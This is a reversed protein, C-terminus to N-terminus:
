DQEKKMQVLLGDILEDVNGSARPCKNQVVKGHWDILASHPLGNIDFDNWLKEGWKGEALLNVTKVRHKTIMKKWLRSSTSINLITVPENKYREVLENEHSFDQICPKCGANWFNILVIQDKFESPEHYVGSTDPLYFYPLDTDTPLVAYSVSYDKLFRNFKKNKVLDISAEDISFGYDISRSFVEALYADRILGSLQSKIHNIRNKRKENRSLVVSKLPYENLYNFYNNLYIMYASNGLLDQNQVQVTSNVKQFFDNPVPGELNQFLKRYLISNIKHQASMYEIREVEFDIYWKPLNTSNAKLYTLNVFTISDNIQAIQGYSNQGETYSKSRGVYDIVTSNFHKSKQLLFDNISKSQGLFSILKQDNSDSNIILTDILGPQSIIKYGTNDIMLIIYDKGQSSLELSLETNPLIEKRLRIDKYPWTTFSRTKINISNNTKNILRLQSKGDIDFSTNQARSQISLLLSLFGIFCFIFKTVTM